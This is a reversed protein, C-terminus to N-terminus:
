RSRSRHESMIDTSCTHFHTIYCSFIQRTKNLALSPFLLLDIYLVGKVITNRGFTETPRNACRCEQQTSPLVSNLDRSQSRSDQSNVHKERIWISRYLCIGPIYEFKPELTEKRTMKMAYNLLRGKMRRQVILAVSVTTLYVLLLM